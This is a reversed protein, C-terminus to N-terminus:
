TEGLLPKRCFRTLLCLAVAVLVVRVEVQLMLSTAAPMADKASILGVDMAMVQLASRRLNKSPCPVDFPPMVANGHAVVVDTGTRAARRRDIM